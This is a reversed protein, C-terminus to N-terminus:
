YAAEGRLYIREPQRVTPDLGLGSYGLATFGLAMLFQDGMRYGLEARVSGLQGGDPASSRRAVEAAVELGGVVRVSPRLSASLVLANTGAQALIGANAGASIAVRTGLHLAPLLSLTQLVYEGQLPLTPDPPPLNRTLGYHLVIALPEMRWSLGASADVFRAELLGLNTTQSMNLRGSARLNDLLALQIGASALWQSRNVEVPPGLVTQGREFRYEGRAFLRVKSRAFTVTAGATDRALPSLIDLAERVGREYRGTVELGDALEETIGMARSMRISTADHAGVDEVFVSSKDGVETRAGSVMRRQGVDPGDVDVSYSGYHTEEGQQLQGDVWAQPGLQPGWGGRVGVMSNVTPSLEAGLSSFTTDFAGPGSGRQALVQNHSAILALWPTLHYRGFLGASTRGGTPEPVAPAYPDVAATLQADRGEARLEWRAARYGVSAGFTRSAIFGTGFPDRSDAGIRDDVLAGVVVNGLRQEARLSGQHANVADEHSSDSFGASRARYSADIFGGEGWGPGKIRIGWANGAGASPSTPNVWSLGGDDSIGFDGAQIALGSSHAYEGSLQLPGLPVSARARYLLYPNLGAEDVAGASLKVPGVNGSLEGGGLPRGAINAQRHEYEVILVQEPSATIPEAGLVSSGAVFSLPRALLIRGALYNIEYDRGRVLHREAVPLGGLGDRVEVRVVESGEALDQHGLYYVSGGTARLEEHAPLSSIGHVPDVWGPAAFARASVQLIGAPTHLDLFPGFLERQYRGVEGDSIEARATGVGLRGWIPHSLEARLVAEGPNPVLGVSDDGWESPFREPDLARELRDSQRLGLLALAGTQKLDALDQDRLELEGNLHWAGIPVEAHAGGRGWLAVGGGVTWAGELDVLGVAFAQAAADVPLLLKQSERGPVELTLDVENHGAALTVPVQVAGGRPVVAEGGPYRIHTGPPAQLTLSSAGASAPHGQVSPSRISATPQIERPVVLVSDARQIVDIRETFLRVAGEPSIAILPVRNTGPELPVDPAQFAGTPDVEAEIGFVQVRDNPSAQGTVTFRVSRSAELRGSPPRTDPAAQVPGATSPLESVAFDQLVLGALPVEVTVAPRSVHSTPSLGRTDLKVRHRGPELHAGRLLSPARSGVAALHYRGKADCIAQQGTELVVRAGPIGPEDDGCLGDGDLDRCVRGAIAGATDSDAVSLAGGVPAQAWASWAVLSLWGASRPSM